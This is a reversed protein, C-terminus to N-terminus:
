RKAQPTKACLIFMQVDEPKLKRSTRFFYLYAQAQRLTDMTLSESYKFEWLVYSAKSDRVADPLMARQAATWRETERRLLVIDIRPPESSIGIEKDVGVQEQGISLEM